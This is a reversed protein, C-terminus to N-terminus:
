GTIEKRIRDLKMRTAFDETYILYRPFDKGLGVITYLNNGDKLMEKSLSHILWIALRIKIKRM